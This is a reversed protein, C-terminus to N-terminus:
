KIKGFSLGNSIVDSVRIAPSGDKDRMDIGGIIALGFSMMPNPKQLVVTLIDHEDTKSDKNQPHEETKVDGATKLQTQSDTPETPLDRNVPISLQETDTKEEEKQGGGLDLPLGREIKMSTSSPTEDTTTLLMDAPLGRDMLQSSNFQAPPFRAQMLPQAQRMRPQTQLATGGNPPFPRIDGPMNPRNPWQGPPHMPPRNQALPPRISPPHGMEMHPRIQNPGRMMGTDHHQSPVVEDM